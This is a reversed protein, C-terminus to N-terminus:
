ASSPCTVRISLSKVRGGEIARLRRLKDRLADRLSDERWAAPWSHVRSSKGSPAGSLLQREVIRFWQRGLQERLANITRRHCRGVRDGSGCPCRKKNAQRKKTVLVQVFGLVDSDSDLRLLSRLDEKIGDIGHALDEFPAEGYARLHSFRYLYPVVCRNVFAGLSLGGSLMFRIRTESGLCLAGDQLHHYSLPIRGETEFVAPIRRPFAEPIRIEVEYADSIRPRGPMEASFELRGAIVLDAFAPIIRLGPQSVLFEELRWRKPIESSIAIGGPGRRQNRSRWM